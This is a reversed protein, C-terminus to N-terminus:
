KLLEEDIDLEKAIQSRRSDEGQAGNSRSIRKGMSATNGFHKVTKEESSVMKKPVAKVYYYYEDDEFQVRETRAYDLDMMFFEIVFSILLSVISGIILAILKGSINLVLYGATLGFVQILAGAIIAVTWGNEISMRRILYVVLSAIVFVALVLFMEKNETLQAICIGFKSTLQQGEEEATNTLISANSQIGHIFYYVVTGCVVSVVSYPPRLLGTAVPMIFPIRFQFCIPTLLAAMGDKPAFRFYILYIVLFVILTVIAAEVSLAYIDLIVLVAGICLIANQPLLCCILALLLAVPFSSIREMYGINANIILFLVLAALFKEAMRIYVTYCSYFKIIKDKIELLQTM